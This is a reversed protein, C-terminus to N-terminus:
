SEETRRKHMEQIRGTPGDTTYKMVRKMGVSLQKSNEKLEMLAYLIDGLM